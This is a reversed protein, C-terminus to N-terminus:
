RRYAAAETGVLHVLNGLALTVDEVHLGWRPGQAQAVIPRRDSSRNHADVQLWSAGRSSRCRATYQAPFAVWPTSPVRLKTGRPTLGGISTSRFYPNLQGAGGRLAAPNVCLVEQSTRAGATTFPNLGQGARGFLSDPPPPQDFSSFAIVCGTQRGGRCAPIHQFDGGVTHGRPVTLNGGMLLASVLQRRKQSSPDIEHALLAILLSAGQSHGIFVIGRGRNYHTMYARFASLLGLYATVAGAATIGGRAFVAHLTLQPYMPAYMRCVQSFRSAQAIAVAREQPDIELNANTTPQLSVTPYVYFCDVRPNRAPASRQRHGAGNPGVVTAELSSTCPDHALGPRCLWVTAGATPPGGGASSAGVTSGAPASRGCAGLALVFAMLVGRIATRRMQM